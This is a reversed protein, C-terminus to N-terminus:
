IEFKVFRGGILYSKSKVPESSKVKSAISKIPASPEHSNIKPFAEQRAQSEESNEEGEHEEKFEKKVQKLSPKFSEPEEQWKFYLYQDLNKRFKHKHAKNIHLFNPRGDPEVETAQSIMTEFEKKSVEPDRFQEVLIQQCQATCRFIFINSAQERISKPILNVFQSLYWISANLHRNKISLDSFPKSNMLKKNSMLDDGIILLKPIKLIDGGAEELLEEQTKIIQAVQSPKPNRIVQGITGDEILDDYMDDGSGILLIIHDFYPKPKIPKNQNKREQGKPIHMGEFSAGYFQPKMLLNAVTTTKGCGAPGTLISIKPHKPIIGLKMLQRQPLQQKKSEVLEIALPNQLM